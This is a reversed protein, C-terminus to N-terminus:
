GAKKGFHTSFTSTVASGLQPPRVSIPSSIEAIMTRRRAPIGAVGRSANARGSFAAAIVILLVASEDDNVQVGELGM